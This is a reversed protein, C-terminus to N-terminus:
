LTKIPVGFVVPELCPPNLFGHKRPAKHTHPNQPGWKLPKELPTHWLSPRPSNHMSTAPGALDRSIETLAEVAVTAVYRFVQVNGAPVRAHWSLACLSGQQLSRLPAMEFLLKTEPQRMSLGDLSDKALAATAHEPARCAYLLVFFGVVGGGIM